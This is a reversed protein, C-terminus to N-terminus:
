VSVLDSGNGVFAYKWNAFTVRHNQKGTVRADHSELSYGATCYLVVCYLLGCLKM